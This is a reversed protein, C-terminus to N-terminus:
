IDTIGNIHHLLDNLNGLLYNLIKSPNLKAMEIKEKEMKFIYITNQLTTILELKADKSIYYYKSEKISKILDTTSKDIRTLINNDANKLYRHESELVSQLNYATNYLGEVKYLLSFQNLLKNITAVQNKFDDKSKAITQEQISINNIIKAAREELSNIKSRKEEIIRISEKNKNLDIKCKNTLEQVKAQTNLLNGALLGVILTVLFTITNSDFLGKKADLLRHVFIELDRSIENTNGLRVDGNIGNTSSMYGNVGNHCIIEQIRTENFENIYKNVTWYNYLSLSTVVLLLIYMYIIPNLYWKKDNNM